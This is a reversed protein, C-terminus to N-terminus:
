KFEFMFMECLTDCISEMETDSVRGRTRFVRKKDITKIQDLAAYSDVDLGSQASARVLIRTPVNRFKSTVPVINVTLLMNNMEDPSVVVCPRTKSIEAGITPDLCAMVIDGRRM